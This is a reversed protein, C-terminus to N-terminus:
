LWHPFVLKFDLDLVLRLSVSLFLSASAFKIVLVLIIDLLASQQYLRCVSLLAVSCAFM